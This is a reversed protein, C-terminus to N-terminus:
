TERNITLNAQKGERQLFAFYSGVVPACFRTAQIFVLDLHDIHRGIFYNDGFSLSLLLLGFGILFGYVIENQRAIKGGIYGGLM